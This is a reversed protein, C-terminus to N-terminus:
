LAPELPKRGLVVEEPNMKWGLVMMRVMATRQDERSCKEVDFEGDFCGM